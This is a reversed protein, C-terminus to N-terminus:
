AVQAVACRYESMRVPYMGTEELIQIAPATKQVSSGNTREESKCDCNFKFSSRLLQSILRM